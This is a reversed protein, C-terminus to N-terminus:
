GARDPSGRDARVDLTYRSEQGDFRSAWGRGEERSRFAALATRLAGLHPSWPWGQWEHALGDTRVTPALDGGGTASAGLTAASRVEGAQGGM